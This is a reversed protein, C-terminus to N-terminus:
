NMVECGIEKGNTKTKHEWSGVTSPFKEKEANFLSLDKVYFIEGNAGFTKNM